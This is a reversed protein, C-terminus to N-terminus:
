DWWEKEENWEPHKPFRASFEPKDVEEYEVNYADPWYTYLSVGSQLYAVIVSYNDGYGTCWYPGPPPVIVPRYDEQNTRFRARLWM